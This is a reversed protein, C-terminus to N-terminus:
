ADVGNEEKAADELHEDYLEGATRWDFCRGTEYGCSCAMFPCYREGNSAYFAEIEHNM